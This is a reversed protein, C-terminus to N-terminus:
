SDFPYFLLSVITYICLVTPQQSSYGAFLMSDFYNSSRNWVVGKCRFSFCFQLRKFERKIRTRTVKIRIFTEGVQTSLGIWCRGFVISYLLERETTNVSTLWFDFQILYFFQVHTPDNYQRRSFFIRLFWASHGNGLFSSLLLCELFYSLLAFNFLLHMLITM